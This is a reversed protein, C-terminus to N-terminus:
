LNMAIREFAKEVADYDSHTYVDLTVSVNSHGMLYQLSKVDLGAQQVDTCFTHRLVHPTVNPLINGYLKVFKKQMGRMYNELHMAVKPKGDKDLFLFGSCGELLMEVKPTVRNTLVRRFALYVTDTMPINRVGSKTKPSTIFYPKDATRCLQRRVYIRRCEFDLDAKTLGYLESVRLGTGLLIVIDDYYNGSGYDRIFQLYKEQQAKTLANRIYADNPVVDSLKFKFPNKRIIDDDVAMEFAPRIVSQVVGITNQKMGGDHLAVFWGKADSLRISKVERQGFESAQIRKIATGYARMSNQKLGRKLNIYRDVLESVSMEGAAYDIGDALDRKITEEKKRLEELTKAYVYQRKKHIDTYRYMYSGNKRQSEGDKLIRGKSDKRKESM